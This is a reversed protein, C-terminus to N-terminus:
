PFLSAPNASASLLTGRDFVNELQGNRWRRLRYLTAFDFEAAAGGQGGVVESGRRVNDQMWAPLFLHFPNRRVEGAHFSTGAVMDAVDAITSEVMLNPESMQGWFETEVIYCSFESGTKKLADIVVYHTGIHKTNWDNDHPCFIIKPRHEAIIRAIIEVSGTWVSPQNQRTQVTIGDLGGPRTQVLDYGLFACARKLEEFREAQREVLSGQTVAVNVVRMRAERLLRLALAGVICEDDPHPSFILVKSADAALQPRASPSLGGLPYAKAEKILRVYERVFTQYPNM